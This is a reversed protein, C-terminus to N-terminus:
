GWKLLFVTYDHENDFELYRDNEYYQTRADTEALLWEQYDPGKYQIWVNEKFHQNIKETASHFPVKIM